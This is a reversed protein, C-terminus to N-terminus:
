QLLPVLIFLDNAERVRYCHVAPLLVVTQVLFSYFSFYLATLGIFALLCILYLYQIVVTFLGCFRM